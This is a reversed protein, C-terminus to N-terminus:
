DELQWYLYRLNYSADAPQAFGGIGKVGVNPVINWWINFFPPDEAIIEQIEMYIKERASRNPERSAADLMETVVPNDYLTRNTPMGPYVLARIVAANLAYGMGTILMELKNEAVIGPIAPPEVVNIDTKIGIRNLQMQVVEAAKIQDAMAATIIITEGNYPSAALYEKAADLDEPVVPININRFETMYGWLGGSEYDPLVYEGGVAMTIEARDLASAVAMRFNFNGCIPHTMNFQIPGPNNRIHQYYVFDPNDIFQDIDQTPMNFVMQAEGNLLMMARTAPEPIHLMTIKRTIPADGWFGDYREFTWHDLPIFDILRYAGTGIWVGKDPDAAVAKENLIVAETQSIVWLFEVNVSELVFQVTYDDLAVVEKVFGWIAGAIAGPTSKATTATWVVDHATFKEGNHFNVDDRLKLTFTQYDTTEWDTALYPLPQGDDTSLLLRDYILNYTWYAPPM